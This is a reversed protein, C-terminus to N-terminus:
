KKKFIAYISEFFIFPHASTKCIKNISVEIRLIISQINPTLIQIWKSYRSTLYIFAIVAAFFFMTPPIMLILLFAASISGLKELNITGKRVGGIMLFGCIGIIIFFSIMPMIIQFFQQSRTKNNNQLM